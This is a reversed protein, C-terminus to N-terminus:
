GFASGAGLRCPSLRGALANPGSQLRGPPTPLPRRRCCRGGVQRPSDLVQLNPQGLGDGLGQRPQLWPPMPSASVRGQPFDM